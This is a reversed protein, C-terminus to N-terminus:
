DDGEGKYKIEVCNYNEGFEKLAGNDKKYSFGRFLVRKNRGLLEFRYPLPITRSCGYSERGECFSGTLDDTIRWMSKNVSMLGGIFM